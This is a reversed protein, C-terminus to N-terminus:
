EENKRKKQHRARCELEQAAASIKSALAALGSCKAHDLTGHATGNPREAWVFPAAAQVQEATSAVRFILEETQM